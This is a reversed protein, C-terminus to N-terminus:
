EPRSSVLSVYVGMCIRNDEKLSFTFTIKNEMVIETISLKSFSVKAMMSFHIESNNNLDSSDLTSFHPTFYGETQTWECLSM